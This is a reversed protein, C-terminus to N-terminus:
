SRPHLAVFTAVSGQREVRANLLLALADLVQDESENGFSATIRRAGLASDAIQIRFQYWRELQPVIDRFAEKDFALRGETWALAQEIDARGMVTTLGRSDLRALQGRTVVAEIASPGREPRLSVRGSRVVVDVRHDAPYARVSFQTGLVRTISEAAHVLFPRTSDHAVDFYAEGQLRVERVTRGFDSPIWLKSEPALVVSSGDALRLMARAGRAAAFERYTVSRADRPSRLFLGVGVGLGVVAAARLAGRPVRAVRGRGGVRTNRGTVPALWRPPRDASAGARAALRRWAADVGARAVLPRSAGVRQWVVRAEEVLAHRGPDAAIWQEFAAAEGESCEGALYEALRQWDM